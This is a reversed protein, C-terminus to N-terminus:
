EEGLLVRRYSLRSPRPGEAPGPEVEREAREGKSPVAIDAVGGSFVDLYWFARMALKVAEGGAEITYLEELDAGPLSSRFDEGHPRVKMSAWPVAAGLPLTPLPVVALGPRDKRMGMVILLTVNEGDPAAWFIGDVSEPAEGEAGLTWVLHQPLQLYGGRAPLNPAWDGEEPGSQVLFRVVATELLFLPQGQEWFHFAQFLLAGHQRVAETPDGEGRIERLALAVESLLLFSEPADVSGGRGEAEQRIRPFREQPFGEEPLLLEYPTVRAYADHIPM